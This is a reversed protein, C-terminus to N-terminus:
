LIDGQYRRMNNLAIKTAERKNKAEVRDLHLVAFDPRHMDGDEMNVLTARYTTRGNIFCQWVDYEDM